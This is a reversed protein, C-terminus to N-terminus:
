LTRSLHKNNPPVFLRKITSVSLPNSREQLRPVTKMIEDRLQRASVGVSSCTEKRRRHAAFGHDQLTEIVAPVIAPYVKYLARGGRKKPLTGRAQSPNEGFLRKRTGPPSLLPVQRLPSLGTSRIPSSFASMPTSKEPISTSDM